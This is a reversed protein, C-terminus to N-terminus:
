ERGAQQEDAQIAKGYAAWDGDKRFQAEAAAVASLFKKSAAEQKRYERLSAVARSTNNEAVALRAVMQRRAEDTKEKDYEAVAAEAVSPHVKSPDAALASNIRSNISPDAIFTEPKM